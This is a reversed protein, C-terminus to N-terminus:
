LMLQILLTFLHKNKPGKEGDCRLIVGCEEVGENGAVKCNKGVGNKLFYGIFVYCNNTIKCLVSCRGRHLLQTAARQSKAKLNTIKYPILCWSCM